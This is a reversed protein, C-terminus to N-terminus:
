SSWDSVSEESSTELIFDMALVASSIMEGLSRLRDQHILCEEPKVKRLAEELANFNKQSKKILVQERGILIKKIVGYVDDNATYRKTKDHPNICSILNYEILENLALSALAKSVGLIKTLDVGSLPQKSLYVETWIRGHIRRFGWYRIFDGVSDAFVRLRARQTRNYYSNTKNNKIDKKSPKSPM